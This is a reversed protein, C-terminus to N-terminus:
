PLVKIQAGSGITYLMVPPIPQGGTYADAGIDWAGSSPRLQGDIDTTFPWAADASLNIGAGKAGVDSSTLHYNKNAADVFSFTQQRRAHTGPASNDSSANYDSDASVAAQVSFDIRNGKVLNNKVHTNQGSTRIGYRNCNIITNNYIWLLSDYEAIIGIGVAGTGLMDYIVNNWIYVNTVDGTHIGYISSNTTLLSKIINDSIQVNTVNDIIWIMEQATALNNAIQLGDIRVYNVTIYVEDNAQDDILSYATDKWKGDHRQSANVETATDTPTYIRIYNSAGTTWGIINVYSHDAGTDYYCPLNLIFDVTVLNPSNVHAADKAGDIAVGLSSDEHTISNVPQGSVNPPMTGTATILRWQSTTIKQAIYAISAGNYTVRDGVGLNTATQAVTFTAVGNTIDINPSGSKHDNTNQGVSYYVPTAADTAVVFFGVAFLALLIYVSFRALRM